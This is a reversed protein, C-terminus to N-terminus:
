GSSVSTRPTGTPVTFLRPAPAVRKAVTARRVVPRKKRIQASADDALSFMFASLVMSMLAFNFIKKMGNGGAAGGTTPPIRL